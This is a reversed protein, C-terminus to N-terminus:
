LAARLDEVLAHDQTSVVVLRETARTMGVYALKRNSEAEDDERWLGCLVVTPFELGKANHITSLIIPATATALRDRAKKDAPNNLWFVDLASSRLVAYLARARDFGDVQSAGYLVALSRPHSQEPLLERVVEAVKSVEQKADKAFYVDPPPGERAAAEPPIVASEDEFDPVEEGHLESSALLFDSAFQLIQKTNRYNIRLIRTRGQAQIGAQKWSFKRRFINQAADAVVVLDDRGDDLLGVIFQLARTSFDQAEDVLVAHYRPSGAKKHAELAVEAVRDGNDDGYGPFRMRASRIVNFMIKDLNLVEVNPRESLLYRLQGALSRTYCTVLIRQNPYLGGLLKARYVLILTKGSGAVGRIVRHGEGLSKAMSEQQRDMVRIIEGEEPALFITLQDRKTAREAVRDIVTEPQIVGRLLKEVDDGFEQFPAGKLIRTFARMLATEGKGEIAADLDPRFLCADLPVIGALGKSEADNRTLSPFVAGAGIPISLDRLRPEVNVRERLTGALRKARDLPNELEVERGDREIRVRGRLSGLIGGSGLELAELVVIGQNPFLVVLHPKEGSPDYLPEYWVTVGEDLGVQFAQAARHIGAPVDRRSKLNDPILFAM